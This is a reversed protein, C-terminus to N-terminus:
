AIVGFPISFGALAVGSIAIDIARKLVSNFGRLPVDNLSIIPVGDLNELRARLAIFQLLDPVVHIDIGERNTAEILGLMKVHEELPLAVYLHDVNERRVIEDAETLTGLLPIGRYGIHDGGARDDLFGVVNFGLERHELVKDAVVRGLDGAGAILVRKLGIGARWRGELAERVLERSAYSFAVNVVLFLLWVFQSVEYQGLDNAAESVYH